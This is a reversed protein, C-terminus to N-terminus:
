FLTSKFMKSKSSILLRDSVFEDKVNKGGRQFRKLMSGKLNLYIETEFLKKPLNFNINKKGSKKTGDFSLAIFAGKKKAFVLKDLLEEYSFSQAGYLIKQSDLYPPDCYIIDDEGAKLITESYDCNKFKTNKIVKYWDLSRNLIEEPSVPNHPGLPTSLYGDKRFRVVGGYCARSIFFFDHPNNSKNFNSKIKEYSNKRDKSFLLFRKKYEEYIVKPKKQLIKFFDILNKNTDSAISNEPKFHYLVAGSGLFPEIYRKYKFPFYSIIEKAVRHKNGIYKLIQKSM